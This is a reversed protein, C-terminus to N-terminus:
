RLIESRLCAVQMSGDPAQHLFEFSDVPVLLAHVGGGILSKARDKGVVAVFFLLM